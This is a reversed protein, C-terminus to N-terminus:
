RETSGGTTRNPWAPPRPDVWPKAAVEELVVSIATELQKDQGAALSTPDNYVEIDPQVGYGEVSWPRRDRVRGDDAHQDLRTVFSPLGDIATMGGMHTGIVQSREPPVHVSCDGGSGAAHNILMVEAGLHRVARCASPGRDRRAYYTRAPREADRNAIRIFGGREREDIIGKATTSAVVPAPPGCAMAWHQARLYGSRAAPRTAIYKRKGEIRRAPPQVRHAASWRAVRTTAAGGEKEGHDADAIRWGLFAGRPMATDVKVGNVALLFDGVKVDVGAQSLPGHADLEWDAGKYIKTIRYGANGDDDKAFEYDCGLMGITSGKVQESSRRSWVFTHSANVEGIMWELIHDVDDRTTSYEVLALSREKVKPWDRRAHQPRLSTATFAGRMHSSRRWEARPDVQVSM